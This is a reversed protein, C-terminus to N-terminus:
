KKYREMLSRLMWTVFFSVVAGITTMIITKAIDESSLNIIFGTLTGGAIGARTVTHQGPDAM